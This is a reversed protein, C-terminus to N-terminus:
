NGKILKAKHSWSQLCVNLLSPNNKILGKQQSITKITGWDLFERISYGLVFHASSKEDMDESDRWQSSSRVQGLLKLGWEYSLEPFSLEPELCCTFQFKICNRFSLRFFNLNIRFEFGQGRRDSEKRLQMLQTYLQSSRGEFLEESRLKWIHNEYM